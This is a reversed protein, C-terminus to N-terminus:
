CRDRSDLRRLSNRGGARGVLAKRNADGLSAALSVKLARMSRVNDMATELELHLPHIIACNRM